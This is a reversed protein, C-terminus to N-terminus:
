AITQGAGGNAPLNYAGQLDTPGLGNPTDAMPRLDKVGKIDTRRLAMCSFEGNKPTSCVQEVGPRSATAATGQTAAAASTAAQAVPFGLVAVAAATLAALRASTKRAAPRSRSSFTRM